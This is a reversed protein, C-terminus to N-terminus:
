AKRLLDANIADVIHDPTDDEAALRRAYGTPGEQWATWRAKGIPLGDQQQILAVHAGFANRKAPATM